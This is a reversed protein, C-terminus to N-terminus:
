KPRGFKKNFDEINYGHTNRYSKELNSLILKYLSYIIFLIFLVGLVWPYVVLCYSFAFVSCVIGLTILSAKLKLNMTM